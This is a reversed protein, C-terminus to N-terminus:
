VHLVESGPLTLRWALQAYSSLFHLMDHHVTQWDGVAITRVTCIKTNAVELSLSSGDAATQYVRM